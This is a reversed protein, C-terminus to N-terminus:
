ARTSARGSTLLTTNKCVYRNVVKAIILKNDAANVALYGAPCVYTRVGGVAEVEKASIGPSQHRGSKIDLAGSYPKSMGVLTVHIAGACTNEYSIWHYMQPDYFERACEPIPSTFEQSKAEHTAAIVLLLIFLYKGSLTM